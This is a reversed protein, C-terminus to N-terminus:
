KVSKKRIRIHCIVLTVLSVVFLTMGLVQSIAINTSGIKLRDVRIGEVFFRIIGYGGLYWLGIEGNFKKHKRYLLIAILLLLNFFGEYLFTPHVQIYNTGPVIHAALAPTLDAMRVITIPLRMAFLGDCYGGFVERNTFNGWRGIIQGALLGLVGADVMGLFPQAKIRAFVFLAIVAGIVGGYIALGGGRINFVQLPHDKYQDWSFIVYYIRAGIVSSIIGYLIFDWWIDDPQGLRKGEKSNIYFGVFMATAIIIGYFAINLGFITVSKPVNHFYLNLNPFAIDM